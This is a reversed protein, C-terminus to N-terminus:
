LCFFFQLNHSCSSSFFFFSPFFCAILCAFFPFLFRNCFARRVVRRLLKKRQLTAGAAAASQRLLSLKIFPPSTAVLFAALLRSSPLSRLQRLEVFSIAYVRVHLLRSRACASSTWSSPSSFM